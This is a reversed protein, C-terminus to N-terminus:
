EFLKGWEGDVWISATMLQLSLVIVALVIAAISLVNILGAGGTSEAEEQELTGVNARQAPSSMPQTQQLQVTARPLPQSAAGGMAMPAAGLTNTKLQITPAPAPTSGPNARVAAAPPAPVARPAPPAAAPAPPAAAPAASAQLPVSTTSPEKIPVAPAPPTSPPPSIAAPAAMPAAPAVPATGTTPPTSKLTVRVTEKRLPVASTKKMENPDFEESM